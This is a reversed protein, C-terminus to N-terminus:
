LGPNDPLNIQEYLKNKIYFLGIVAALVQTAIMIELIASISKGVFLVALTGLVSVFLFGYVFKTQHVSLLYQAILNVLSFLSALVAFWSLFGAVSDYRSGFLIGIVTRPFSSYIFISFFCVIAIGWLAYKFIPWANGDKHNKEAAMPFLVAAIIGTVFFIIKSVITLAGYQGAMEPTLNHKALVMDINGLIMLGLNGFLVPLVYAKMSTFNLKEWFTVGSSDKRRFIFRLVYFTLLYTILSGLVFGGIIGSLVFGIKILFVAAALKIIAGLIGIWSADKFKQWGNVIGGNVAGAFSLIIMLWILIIALRDNIKLFDAVLPTLLLMVAFIPLLWAFVKRNLFKMLFLTQEPDNEAKSHSSYKTALMGLAAAPVSIIVFLSNLSEFAGYTEVSVLRGVILHFFYNIVNVTMTGAFLILSNRAFKNSAIGNVIKNQLIRQVM